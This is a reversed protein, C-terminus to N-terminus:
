DPDKQADVSEVLGLTAMGLAVIIWLWVSSSAPFGLRSASLFVAGSM